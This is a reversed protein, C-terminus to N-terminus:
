VRGRRRLRAVAAGPSGFQDSIEIDDFWMGDNNQFLGIGAFGSAHNPDTTQLAQVGNVYSTLQNGQAEFRLTFPTGTGPHPINGSALVQIAGGLMRQIQMDGNYQYQCFYCNQPFPTATYNGDARLVLINRTNLLNGQGICRSEIYGDAVSFAQHLAWM